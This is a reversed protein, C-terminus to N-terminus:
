FLYLTWFIISSWEGFVIQVLKENKEKWKKLGEGKM